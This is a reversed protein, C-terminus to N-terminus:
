KLKLGHVYKSSRQTFEMFIREQVDLAGVSLELRSGSEEMPRDACCHVVVTARYFYLNAKNLPLKVADLNEPKWAEAKKSNSQNNVSPM